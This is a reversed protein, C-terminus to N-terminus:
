STPVENGLKLIRQAEDRICLLNVKVNRCVRGELLRVPLWLKPELEVVYSLTTMYEQETLLDGQQRAEMNVQEISWRGEFTQFDGDVMRFEIERRLAIPTDELDGEYCELIGKANFKLGLALNQEGVQYIRAFNQRKELLQSVALSPIFTSLGEYNTLVRWVSSLDADVRVRSRIRRRNNKGEVKLVEIEFDEDCSMAELYFDWRKEVEEGIIKTDELHLSSLPNFEVPGPSSKSFIPLSRRYLSLIRGYSHASSPSFTNRSTRLQYSYLSSPRLVLISASPTAVSACRQM